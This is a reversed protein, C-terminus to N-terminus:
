KVFNKKKKKRLEHTSMRPSMETGKKAMGM